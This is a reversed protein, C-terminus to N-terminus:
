YSARGEVFPTEEGQHFVAIKEVFPGQTAYHRIEARSTLTQGGDADTYTISVFVGGTAWYQNAFAGAGADGSILISASVRVTTGEPVLKRSVRLDGSGRPEMGIEQIVAVGAGVNEFPVSLRFSLEEREFYFSGAPVAIVPRGPAGFLVQEDPVGPPASRPDALLPRIGLDQGRRALSASEETAVASRLSAEAAKRSADADRQTAQAADSTKKAMWLTAGATCATALPALGTALAALETWDVL